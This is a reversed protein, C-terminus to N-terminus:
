EKTHYIIEVKCPYDNNELFNREEATIESDVFDVNKFQCCLKRKFEGFAEKTEFGDCNVFQLIKVSQPVLHLFDYSILANEVRVKIANTFLSVNGLSKNTKLIVFNYRDAKKEEPEYVNESTKFTTLGRGSTLSIYEFGEVNISYNAMTRGIRKVLPPNMAKSVARTSQELHNNYELWIRLDVIEISDTGYIYMFGLFPLFNMDITVDRILLHRFSFHRLLARIIEYSLYGQSIELCDIKKIGKVFSGFQFTKLNAIVHTTNEPVMTGSGHDWYIANEDRIDPPRIIPTDYYSLLKMMDNTITGTEDTERTNSFCIRSLKETPNPTM